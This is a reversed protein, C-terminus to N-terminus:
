RKKYYDIIFRVPDKVDKGIPVDPVIGTTNVGGVPLRNSAAFMPYGLYIGLETCAALNTVSTSQYDIVGGTPQGFLTVKSFKMAQIIAAEAASVDGGDMLIAVNRPKPMAPPLPPQADNQSDASDSPDAMPIVKGPNEELRKLLTKPLWGQSQISKFYNINSPSSLVYTEDGVWYKAARPESVIYPFLANTMSSGGGENGRLDIILNDASEIQAAHTKVLAAFAAGSGSHSPVSILFNAPDLSTFVPARPDKPDIKNTASVDVPLEKGWSFPPMHLILGRRIRGSGATGREYVDIYLPFHKANYYVVTYSGDKLKSFEAKVQGKEWDAVGDSLMVAVFDRKGPKKDKFTAFRNGNSAYWLGEIPDLKSANKTFYAKIDDESRAIKEAKAKLDAAQADTLKPNQGIFLHGDRFFAVFNQLLPVCKDVSTKAAQKKFNNVHSNYEADRKGKFEIHYALYSAEIKSIVDGLLSNCDCDKTQYGFATFSNTFIIIALFSFLRAKGTLNTM